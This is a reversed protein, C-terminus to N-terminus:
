RSTNGYPINGSAQATSLFVYVCTANLQSSSITVVDGAYSPSTEVQVIVDLNSQGTEVVPSPDIQVTMAPDGAGTGTGTGTGSGGTKCTHTKHCGKAAKASAVGSLGLLPMSVVVAVAVGKM